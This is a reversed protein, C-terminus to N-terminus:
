NMILNTQNKADTFILDLFFDKPYNHVGNIGDLDKATLRIVNDSVFSTHILARFMSVRGESGSIAAKTRLHRARILIDNEVRVGVDFIACQDSYYFSEPLESYPLHFTCSVKSRKSVKSCEREMRSSRSTLRVFYRLEKLTQAIM